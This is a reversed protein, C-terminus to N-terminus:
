AGGATLWNRLVTDGPRGYVLVQLGACDVREAPEGFTAVVLDVPLNNAIVFAYQPPRRTPGNTTAFWDPNTMWEFRALRGDIQNVEVGKRSLERVVKASWYDGLGSRAGIRTAVDDICRVSEPYPFRLSAPTLMTAEGAASALVCAAAVVAFVRGRAAHAAGDRWWLPSSVLLGPLLMAPLFHRLLYLDEYRGNLVTAAVSAPMSLVITLSLLRWRGVADRADGDASATRLAAWATFALWAVGVIMSWREERVLTPVDALFRQVSPGIPDVLVHSVGAGVWVVGTVDLLQRIAIAIAVGVVAPRVLPAVRDHPIWHRWAAVGVAVALPVLFHPVLLLDSPVGLGIVLAIAISVLVRPPRSSVVHLVCGTLLLGLLLAGGHYGPFLADTSVRYPFPEHLLIWAAVSTGGAAWADNARGGTLRGIWSLVALMAALYLVAYTAFAWGPDPMLRFLAFMSVVDPVLYLHPPVIWGIVHFEREILDRYLSLPWVTDSEVSVGMHRASCVLAVLGLVALQGVIGAWSLAGSRRPPLASWRDTSPDDLRPRSKVPPPQRDAGVYEDLTRHFHRIRREQSNLLLGTFARSRMGAQVRPLNHLDQDLVVGLSTGGDVNTRHPPRERPGLSAPWRLYDQFDFLMKNPDTPHPRHRFLWFGRGHVNLTVNPFITYHYDDLLQDDHLASLDMGIDDALKRGAAIAAAKVDGPGGAFTEPDIGSGRLVIDGLWKPVRSLKGLRPSPVGVPFIFRSHRGYLDIQVNVDDSYELLEPHTGQVHYAENFADVCTKWNCDIALTVDDVLVHEDFRYPALHEPVVGLYDALSEVDPSMTVWVWGGWTDVRLGGLRLNAPLGQTFDKADTAHRLTGDLNWEWAHYRCSFTPSHGRGAECLRNGRHLCVNYHAHLVGARDRAVVISEPGIDFTFWDGATAVDGERGALLWVRTWMRDWERQAFDRETYREKPIVDAGLDPEASKERPTPRM